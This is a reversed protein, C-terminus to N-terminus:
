LKRGTSHGCTRSKTRDYSATPVQGLTLLQRPRLTPFFCSEVQIYRSAQSILPCLSVSRQYNLSRSAPGYTSIPLLETVYVVLLRFEVYRMANREREHCIRPPMCSL